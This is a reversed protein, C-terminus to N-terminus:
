VNVHILWPHGDRGWGSGGGVERGMGDRSVKRNQVKRVMRLSNTHQLSPEQGQTVHGELNNQGETMVVLVVRDLLWAFQKILFLCCPFVWSANEADDEGGTHDAARSSAVLSM